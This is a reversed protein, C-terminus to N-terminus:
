TQLSDWFQGHESYKMRMATPTFWFDGECGQVVSTAPKPQALSLEFKVHGRFTGISERHSKHAAVSNEFL